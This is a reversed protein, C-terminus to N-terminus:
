PLMRWSPAKATPHGVGLESFCWYKLISYFEWHYIPSLPAAAELASDPNTNKPGVQLTFIGM